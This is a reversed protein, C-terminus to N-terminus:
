TRPTRKRKRSTTQSPKQSEWCCGQEAVSTTSAPTQRKPQRMRRWRQSGGGAGQRCKRSAKGASLFGAKVFGASVFGAKVFGASAFGASVFGAKVFGASVFGASAFGASVVGASM